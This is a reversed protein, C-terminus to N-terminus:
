FVVGFATSALVNRGPRWGVLAEFFVPGEVHVSISPRDGVAGVRTTVTGTELGVSAEPLLGPIEVVPNWSPHVLRVWNLSPGWAVSVVLHEYRGVASIGGGVHTGVRGYVSLVFGPEDVVHAGGFASVGYPLYGSLRVEGGAFWRGERYTGQVQIRDQDALDSLAQLARLDDVATSVFGEVVPREGPATSPLFLAPSVDAALATALLLM